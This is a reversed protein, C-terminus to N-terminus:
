EDGIQPVCVLRNQAHSYYNMRPVQFYLDAPVRATILPVEAIDADWCVRPRSLM